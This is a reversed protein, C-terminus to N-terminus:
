VDVDYIATTKLGLVVGDCVGIAVETKVSGL